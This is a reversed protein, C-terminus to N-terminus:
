PPQRNSNSRLEVGAKKSAQVASVTDTPIARLTERPSINWANM